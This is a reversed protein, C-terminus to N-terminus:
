PPGATELAEYVIDEAIKQRRRRQTDIGLGVGMVDATILKGEAASAICIM